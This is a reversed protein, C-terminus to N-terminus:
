QHSRHMLKSLVPTSQGESPQCLVYEITVMAEDLM